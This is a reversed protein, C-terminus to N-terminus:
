WITVIVSQFIFVQVIQLLLLLFFQQNRLKLKNTSFNAVTIILFPVFPLWIRATEARVSGSFNVALLIILFSVGIADIKSFNFKSKILLRVDSFAGLLFLVSLPIGAFLFFDYLDYFLWILYGRTSQASEHLFMIKRVMEIFDLGLIFLIFIPFLIGLLFYLGFRFHIFFNKKKLFELLFLILFFLLIPLFTLTFFAGIFLVFGSIVFNFKNMLKYGRLFYYLSISTFLPMFIDILPSFMLVSPIFLSIFLANKAAKKGYAIKASGFIFISYLSAIFSIIIGSFIGNTKQVIDLQNWVLSINQESPQMSLVFKLLPEFPRLFLDLLYYLIIGGPPHFRAYMPFREINTIFERIFENLNVINLSATFYGSVLPNITRGLLVEIGARNFFLFTIQIFFGILTLFLLKTLTIEKFRVFCILTILSVLFPAWFKLFNFSPLYTWRWDPSYPAPGFLFPSFNISILVLLFITFLFVFYLSKSKNM